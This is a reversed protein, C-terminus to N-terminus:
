SQLVVAGSSALTSPLPPGHAAGHEEFYTLSAAISAAAGAVAGEAQQGAPTSDLAAALSHILAQTDVLLLLHHQV